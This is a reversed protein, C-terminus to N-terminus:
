VRDIATSRAVYDEFGQASLLLVAGDLAGGSRYTEQAVRGLEVKAEDLEAAAVEARAAAAEARAEAEEQVVLARTYDEAAVAVAVWAAELESSLTALEV